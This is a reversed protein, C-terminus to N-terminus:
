KPDVYKRVKKLLRHRLQCDGNKTETFSEGGSSPPMMCWTIYDKERNSLSSVFEGMEVQAGNLANSGQRATQSSAIQERTRRRRESKRYSRIENRALGALYTSLRANRTTDFRRLLRCDNQIVLYWVRAAVEDVFEEDDAQSGLQKRISNLLSAHCCNYLQEWAEPRGSLCQNILDRDDRVTDKAAM